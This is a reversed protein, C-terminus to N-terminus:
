SLANSSWSRASATLFESAHHLFSSFYKYANATEVRFYGLLGVSFKICAVGDSLALIGNVVSLPTFDEIGLVSKGQSSLFM